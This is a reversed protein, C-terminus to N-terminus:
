STDPYLKVALKEVDQLLDEAVYVDGTRSSMKGTSLNVFGHSLHQTKKALGPNIEALAALMVKFYEAQENATIIISRAAEPYDKDKLETLGLDKAEYTPLGQSTIFVRT